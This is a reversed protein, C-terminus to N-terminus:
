NTEEKPNANDFLSKDDEQPKDLGLLRDRFANMKEFVLQQTLEVTEKVNGEFAGFGKLIEVAEGMGKELAPTVLNMYKDVAEENTLRPNQEKFSIFYSTAGAVIRDATKESSWYDEQGKIGSTKDILNQLSFNEDGLEEKLAGEIATAAEKYFIRLANADGEMGKGFMTQLLSRKNELATQEAKKAFDAKEEDTLKTKVEMPKVESAVAQSKNNLAAKPATTQSTNPLSINQTSM